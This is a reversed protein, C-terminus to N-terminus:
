FAEVIIEIVYSIFGLGGVLCALLVLGTFVYAFITSIFERNATEECTDIEPCCSQTNDGYCLGNCRHTQKRREVAEQSQDFRFRIMPM